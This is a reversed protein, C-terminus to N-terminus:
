GRVDTITGSPLGRGIVDWVARAADDPDRLHGQDHLEHFRDVNPFDSEETARIEAQMATAVVGPAISLVTVHGRTRQEEGVARVWQDLAAKGAGYASWGPYASSAAGSSIMVLLAEGSFGAATVARLFAHGLVQGAASNLLVNDRYATTDVEGAFGIPDLTGANHVFVARSGSFEGMRALLHNEVASWSAPDALDAPIHEAADDGASRSITVTHADDYPATRLLAAGLGSSGGTIWILTDAM